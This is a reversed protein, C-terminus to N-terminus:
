LGAKKASRLNEIIILIEPPGAFYDEETIKEAIDKLAEDYGADFRINNMLDSAEEIFDTTTKQFVEMQPDKIEFTEHTRIVRKTM